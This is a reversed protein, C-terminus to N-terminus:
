SLLKTKRERSFLLACNVIGVCGETIKDIPLANGLLHIQYCFIIDKKLKVALSGSKMEM